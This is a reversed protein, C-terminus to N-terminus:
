ALEIIMYKNSHTLIFDLVHVPVHRAIIKTYGNRLPNKTASDLYLTSIELKQFDLIASRIHCYCNRFKTHAM